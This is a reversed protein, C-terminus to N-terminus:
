HNWTCLFSFFNLHFMKSTIQNYMHMTLQSQKDTHLLTVLEYCMRTPGIDWPKTIIVSLFVSPFVSQHLCHSHLKEELYVARSCYTGHRTQGTGARYGQWAPPFPALSEALVIESRPPHLHVCMQNVHVWWVAIHGAEDAGCIIVTNYYLM